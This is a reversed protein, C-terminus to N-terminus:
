PLLTEMLLLGYSCIFSCHTPGLTHSTQYMTFISHQSKLKIGSFSFSHESKNHLAPIIELGKSVSCYRMAWAAVLMKYSLYDMNAKM